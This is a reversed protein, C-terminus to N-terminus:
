RDVEECRRADGRPLGRQWDAQDKRSPEAILDAVIFLRRQSQPADHFQADLVRWATKHGLGKLKDQL